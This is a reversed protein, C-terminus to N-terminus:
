IWHEKFDDFIVSVDDHYWLWQKKGTEYSYTEEYKLYEEVCEKKTLYKSPTICHIYAVERGEKMLVLTMDPEDYTRAVARRFEKQNM